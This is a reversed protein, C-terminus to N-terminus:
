VTLLRGQSHTKHSDRECHGPHGMQSAARQAGEEGMANVVRLSPFGLLSRGKQMAPTLPQHDRHTHLVNLIQWPGPTPLLQPHSPLYTSHTDKHAVQWENPGGFFVTGLKKGSWPHLWCGHPRHHPPPRSGANLLFPPRM